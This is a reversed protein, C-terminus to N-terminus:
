DALYWVELLKILFWNQCHGLDVLVDIEAQRMGMHELDIQSGRLEVGLVREEWDKSLGSRM